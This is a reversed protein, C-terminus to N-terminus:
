RKLESRLTLVMFFTAVGLCVVFLLTNMGLVYCM